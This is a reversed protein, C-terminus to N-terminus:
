LTSGGDVTVISGTMFGAEESAIFAITSAIEEPEGYRGLLGMLRMLLNINGDALPKFQKLMPTKIGGPCVANVRVQKEAYEMALAKTMMLVGGKSACYAAAYPHAATAAISAVNVICGKTELLHPLSYRCTFFQGSLNVGITRDWGEPTEETTHKFGGVGAANAVIDLKGYAEVTKAVMAEVASADSVDTPAALATGGAETITAVTAAVAEENIDAVAVSAGESAFRIATARGIGSGAGTVIAVKGEFRSM